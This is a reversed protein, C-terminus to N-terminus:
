SAKQTYLADPMQYLKYKNHWQTLKDTLKLSKSFLSKFFLRTIIEPKKRNTEQKLKRPHNM